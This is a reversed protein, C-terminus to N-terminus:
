FHRAMTTEIFKDLAEPSFHVGTEPADLHCHPLRAATLQATVFPVGEDTQSHRMWVPATVQALDFGWDVCRLKLDQAIGFCNHRMSDRNAEQQRDEETLHAFFLDYALAQLESLSAGTNIPFPWHAQVNADYLAPIGSFIYVNRVQGPFAAALAYSYPAGSSMGLVDFRELGLADVLAGAVEAWQGLTEMAYPSSEGYGPRALSIVRARLDILRGFLNGENISAILGHQVLVPIGDREGVDTYALTQNGNYTLLQTKM